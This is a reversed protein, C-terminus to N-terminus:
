NFLLITKKHKFGENRCISIGQKLEQFGTLRLSFFSNLSIM